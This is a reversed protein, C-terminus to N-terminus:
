RIEIFRKRAHSIAIFSENTRKKRNTNKIIQKSLLEGLLRIYYSKKITRSFVVISYDFLKM